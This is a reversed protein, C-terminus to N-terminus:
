LFRGRGVEKLFSRSFFRPVPGPGILCSQTGISTRSQPPAPYQGHGRSAGTRSVPDGASLRKVIAQPLSESRALESRSAQCTNTQIAPPELGSPSSCGRGPDFAGTATCILTRSARLASVSSQFFDPPQGPGILRSQTEISTSSQPPAPYQGHGRSAGLRSVPDGGAANSPDPHANSQLRFYTTEDGIRAPESAWVVGPLLLLRV